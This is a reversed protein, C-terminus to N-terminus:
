VSPGMDNLLNLDKLLRLRDLAQLEGYGLHVSGSVKLQHNLEM